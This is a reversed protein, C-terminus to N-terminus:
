FLNKQLSNKKILSKVKQLYKKEKISNANGLIVLKINKEKKSLM